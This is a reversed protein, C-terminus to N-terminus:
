RSPQVAKEPRGWAVYLAALRERALALERAQRGPLDRISGAGQLLLPEAEAYRGLATLAAGRVSKPVAARWDHDPMAANRLEMARRSLREASVADGRALRIQAKLLFFIVLGVHDDRGFAATAMQLAEDALAEAEDLKGQHRLAQALNHLTQATGITGGFVQRDVLAATRLLPEAVAPKGRDVLVLALSEGSTVTNPHDEGLVKRNTAFSLRMLEEAGALDGRLRLMLALDNESVATDRHEEGFVKRRIALSERFLREAAANDHRDEYARGLEVLAIAVDKDEPGLLRRRLALAEDLLPMARALDGEKRLLVGLDNLTQALRPHEPGGRQRLTALARELLPRAKEDLDLRQYVRGIVTQMEAQLEPQGALEKEVREAGADLLGRVTQEGPTRTRYPDSGTLLGTLLSGIKAAKEMELRARDREATLRSTYFGVLGAVFAVLIFAAALGRAHRRVFKTTRYALTDPRAAIPQNNLYRRLDDAFATVSAYREQPQKKLAKAVITDLDGRLVRRLKEVTTARAVAADASTVGTTERTVAADSLRRPETEVIAKLLEVPGHLTPGAPHRGGLLVYLLVGLAYVDTATTIPGGMIQEPAAYEPTMARGAELTLTAAGPQAEDELLKAIGFDLLKVIGDSRVLVNSPKLDRHVILNAHAHAVAALVDLFLRIRAQIGLQRADCHRDIHAGDVHELVLYPQGLASMGADFLRAINPHALRALMSGERRFREEGARGVLAASLLKVAVRGSFRGDNREALWVIGSGGHGIPSLLTYPGVQQGAFVSTLPKLPSQELFRQQRVADHEALLARVDSAITPEELTLTALWTRRAGEDLELARDLYQSLMQWRQNDVRAM